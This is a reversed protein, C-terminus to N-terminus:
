RAVRASHWTHLCRDAPSGQRVPLPDHIPVTTQRSYCRADADLAPSRSARLLKGPTPRARRRAPSRPLWAAAASFVCRAPHPPQRHMSRIFFHLFCKLALHSHPYSFAGWSFPFPSRATRRVARERKGFHISAGISFLGFVFVLPLPGRFDMKIEAGLPGFMPPWRLRVLRLVPKGVESAKFIAKFM